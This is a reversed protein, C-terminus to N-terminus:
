QFDRKTVKLACFLQSFLLVDFKKNGDVENTVSKMVCILTLTFMDTKSHKAIYSM